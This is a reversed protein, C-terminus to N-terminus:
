GAADGAGVFSLYVIQRVGAEKAADVFSRHIGVRDADEHASVLFVTDIGRLATRCDDGGYEARVVEANTLCPARAPDRVVLRTLVGAADLLRAAHGGIHGTAGTLATSTM